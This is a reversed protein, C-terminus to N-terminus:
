AALKDTYSLKRWEPRSTTNGRSVRMSISVVGSRAGTRVGFPWYDIKLLAEIKGQINRNRIYGNHIYIGGIAVPVRGEVGSEGATNAM